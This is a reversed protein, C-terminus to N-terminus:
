ADEMRKNVRSMIAERSIGYRRAIDRAYSKGVPPGRRIRFTRTHGEEEEKVEAILSAARSRLGNESALEENLSELETGLEHLHTTFVGRAGAYCLGQLVDRAIVLAESPNTSSLSENLLVLSRPGVLDFMASLEGAERAFRGTDLQGEEALPFHTVVCDAPSLVAREAPAFLGAQALAQVIGLGQVFTTKGGQNPGTLVFLRAEEDMRVDNVVIGAAESGHEASKGFRRLALHINYFGDLELRREDAELIEPRCIPLGQERLKRMLHAVGSFLGLERYLNGLFGANVATYRKLGKAIPRLVTGLLSNLNEFLPSLPFAPNVQGQYQPPVPSRHMPTPSAFEGSEGPLLREVLGQERFERENISLITAEVPRLRGDLNIGITVSRHKKIGARMKPLERRMAQFQEGAVRRKLTERLELLGRSEIAASAEDLASLLLEVSEVYLELEGLRWLAEQLPSRADSRAEAFLVLEGIRPIVAELRECLEPIRYLDFLIEQRYRITDPNQPAHAILSVIEQERMHEGAIHRALADIGLVEATETSCLEQARDRGSQWGPHLLGEPHLLSHLAGKTNTM